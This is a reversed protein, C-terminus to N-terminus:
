SWLHDGILVTYVQSRIIMFPFGQCKTASATVSTNCVTVCFVEPKMKKKERYVFATWM